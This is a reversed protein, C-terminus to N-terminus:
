VSEHLLVFLNDFVKLRLRGLKELLGHLVKKGLAEQLGDVVAEVVKFDKIHTAVNTGIYM